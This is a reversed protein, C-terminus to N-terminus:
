KIHITKGVMNSSATKLRIFYIGEPLRTADFRTTYYGPAKEGDVLTKVLRGSLDYVKISVRGYEACSYSILTTQRFPNPCSSYLVSLYHNEDRESIGSLPGLRYISGDQSTFYFFNGIAVSSRVNGGTGFKWNEVAYAGSDIVAYLTDDNSGFYIVGANDIVPSSCVIGQTEYKWKIEGNPYVAVLHNYPTGVYITHDFGITPSSCYESYGSKPSDIPVSWLDEYSSGTDRIAYLKGDNLVFFITDGKVTPTASIGRDLWKMWKIDYTAGLDEVAYLRHNNTTGFYIIDGRSAAGVDYVAGATPLFWKVSGDPGFAIFSDIAGCSVYIDNNSGIVPPASPNAGAGLYYSWRYNGMSDVSYFYDDRSGFYINGNSDVAPSTRIVEGPTEYSGKLSLDAELIYLFGDDSGFCVLGGPGIAPSGYIDSGTSYSTVNPLDEESPGCIYSRGSNQMNHLFSPWPAYLTDVSLRDVVYVTFGLTDNERQEDGALQTYFTVRCSDSGPQFSNFFVNEKDFPALNNVIADDNYVTGGVTDIRCHIGFTETNMGVNKVTVCPNYNCNRVVYLPPYQVDQCKVDHNLPTSASVMVDDLYWYEWDSSERAQWAVFVSCGIYDDLSVDYYQWDDSATYFEGPVEYACTDTSDSQVTIKLYNLQNNHRPKHWFSLIAEAYGTLDLGPSVLWYNTETYTKYISRASASGSHPQGTSREWVNSGGIGDEWGFMIWGLPPFNTDEFGEDLVSDRLVDGGLPGTVILFPIIIFVTFVMRRM